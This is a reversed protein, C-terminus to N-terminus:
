ASVSCYNLDNWNSWPLVCGPLFSPQLKLLASGACELVEQLPDPILLCPAFPVWDTVQPQGGGHSHRGVPESWDGNSVQHLDPHDPDAQVPLRSALTGWGGKTTISDDTWYASSFHALLMIFQLRGALYCAHFSFLFQM